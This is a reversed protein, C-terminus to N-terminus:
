FGPNPASRIAQRRRERGVLYTAGHGRVAVADLATRRTTELAEDSGSIHALEGEDNRERGSRHLRRASRRSFPREDLERVGDKSNALPAARGTQSSCAVPRIGTRLPPRK